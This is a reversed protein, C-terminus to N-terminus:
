QLLPWNAEALNRAGESGIHSNQLWLTNLKPWEARM